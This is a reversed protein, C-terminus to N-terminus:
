ILIDRKCILHNEQMQHIRALLEKDQWLTMLFASQSRHHPGTAKLRERRRFALFEDQIKGKHARLKLM